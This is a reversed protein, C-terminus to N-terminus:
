KLLCVACFIAKILAFIAYLEFKDIERYIASCEPKCYFVKSQHPPGYLIWCNLGCYRLYRSQTSLLM